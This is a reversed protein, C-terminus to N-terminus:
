SDDESWEESPRAHVPDTDPSEMVWQRTVGGEIEEIMVNNNPDHVCMKRAIRVAAGFDGAVIIDESAPEKDLRWVLIAM